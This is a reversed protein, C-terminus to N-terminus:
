KFVKSQNFPKDPFEQLFYDHVLAKTEADNPDLKRWSYSEYDTQLDPSLEFALGTGRWIWLGSIASKKDDGFICMVGYAFKLM